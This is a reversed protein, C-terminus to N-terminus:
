ASSYIKINYHKDILALSKCKSCEAVSISQRVLIDLFDNLPTTVEADSVDTIEEPVLLRMHHGSYLNTRIVEGCTCRFKSAM